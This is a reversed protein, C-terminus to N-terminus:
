PFGDYQFIEIREAAGLLHLDNIVGAKALRPFITAINLVFIRQKGATLVVAFIFVAFRNLQRGAHKHQSGTDVRLIIAHFILNDAVPM